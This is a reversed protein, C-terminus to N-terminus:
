RFAATKQRKHGGVKNEFAAARERVPTAAAQLEEVSTRSSRKSRRTMPRSPSREPSKQTHIEVDNFVIQAGGSKTPIIEGKYIKTELDGESDQEQHTLAYNTNKPDAFDKESVKTVSRKKKMNSPQMIANNPVPTKAQHDIWVNGASRSRRYRPNAIAISRRPTPVPTAFVNQNSRASTLPKRPTEYERSSVDPDSVTLIKSIKRLKNKDFRHRENESHKAEIREEQERIIAEQHSLQTKLKKNSRLNKEKNVNIQREKDDLEKELVSKVDNLAANKRQLSTNANEANVLRKELDQIRRREGDSGGKLRSNEERLVIIEKEAEVLRSRFAEIRGQLDEVLTNRTTVRKTLYRELNDLTDEDDCQNLRLPPWDPGLSYIPSYVSNTVTAPTNTAARRLADRYAENGVAQGPTFLTRQIPTEYKIKVKSTMEAFDMVYINEDYDDPQPNVCVMMRLTGCGNKGEFFDKFMMTIKSNRYPLTDESRGARRKKQNERLGKICERLTGLSNNIKGAEYMRKDDTNGTRNTRESGAMDVLSLMPCQYTSSFEGNSHQVKLLRINFVCHSRSSQSNLNTAEVQRQRQGEHFKQMAEYVSNVQVEVCKVVYNYTSSWDKTKNNDLLDYIRDNYIQFYSIFVACKYGDQLDEIASDDESIFINDTRFNRRNQGQRSKILLDQQENETSMKFEGPKQDDCVYKYKPLLNDEGISKFLVSISRAMIGPDTSTGEMTHTKGSGTVGYCFYLANHNEVLFEKMLPRGVHEFVEKQTATESFARTFTCKKGERGYNRSVEPPTLVVEKDGDLEICADNRPPGRVRCYVAVKNEVFNASDLSSDQSSSRSLPVRRPTQGRTPKM